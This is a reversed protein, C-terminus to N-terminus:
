VLLEQVSKISSLLTDIQSKNIPKMLFTKIETEMDNDEENKDKDKDKDEEGEGQESSKNKNKNKDENENENEDNTKEKQQVVAFRVFNGVKEFKMEKLIPANIITTLIQDRRCLIRGKKMDKNDDGEEKISYTNVKVIGKGREIYKGSELNYIKCHIACKNDDNKDGADQEGVMQELVQKTKDDQEFTNPDFKPAQTEWGVKSSPNLDIKTNSNEWSGWDFSLKFTGDANSNSWAGGWGKDDKKKDKDKDKDSEKNDKDKDKEKDTDDDNNESKGNADKSNQDDLVKKFGLGAFESFSDITNNDNIVQPSSKNKDNNTTSEDNSLDSANSTQKVWSNNGFTFDSAKFTWNSVDTNPDENDNKKNKNKNNDNNNDNSKATNDNKKDDDNSNNNNVNNNTTISISEDENLKRKKSPNSSDINAEKLTRKSATTTM